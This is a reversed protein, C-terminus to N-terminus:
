LLLTVPFKLRFRVPPRCIAEIRTKRNSEVVEFRFTTVAGVKEVALKVSVRGNREAV